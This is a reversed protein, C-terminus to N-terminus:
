SSLSRHMDPMNVVQITLASSRWSEAARLM